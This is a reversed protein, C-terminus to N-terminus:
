QGITYRVLDSRSLHHLAGSGHCLLQEFICHVRARGFDLQDYFVRSFGEYLHNVVTAAHGLGVRAHTELPMSSGFDPFRFVQKGQM